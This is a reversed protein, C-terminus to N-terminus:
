LKAGDNPGLDQDEPRCAMWIAGGMDLVLLPLTVYVLPHVFIVSILNLALLVPMAYVLISGLNNKLKEKM